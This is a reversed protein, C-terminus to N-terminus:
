EYWSEKLEEDKFLMFNGKGSLEGGKTEAKMFAEGKSTHTPVAYIGDPINDFSGFKKSFFDRVENMEAIM